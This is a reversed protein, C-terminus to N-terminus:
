KSICLGIFKYRKIFEPHRVLESFISSYVGLLILRSRVRPVAGRPGAVARKEDRLVPRPTLEWFTFVSMFQILVIKNFDFPVTFPSRLYSDDQM